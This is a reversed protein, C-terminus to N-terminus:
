VTFYRVVYWICRRIYNKPPHEHKFLYNSHINVKIGYQKYIRKKEQMFYKGHSSGLYKHQSEWCHIMEHVMVSCFKEEDWQVDSSICLTKRPKNKFEGYPLGTHIKFHPKRLKGEFYLANYEDFKTSLFDETIVIESM